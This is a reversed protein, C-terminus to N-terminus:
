IAFPLADGVLKPDPDSTFVDSSGESTLANSVAKMAMKNISCSPVLLCFVISLTLCLNQKRM